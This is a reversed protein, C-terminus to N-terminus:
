RWACTCRKESISKTQMKGMLDMHDIDLWSKSNIDHVAKHHVKVQKGKKFTGYVIKNEKLHSFRFIVEMDILKATPM